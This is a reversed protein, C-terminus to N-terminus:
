DATEGLEPEVARDDEAEIQIEVRRLERRRGRALGRDAREDILGLPAQALPVPERVVVLQGELRRELPGGAKELVLKWAVSRVAEGHEGAIRVVEELRQLQRAAHRVPDGDAVGRELARQRVQRSASTFRRSARM